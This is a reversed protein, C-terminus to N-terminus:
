IGKRRYLLCAIDVIALACFLVGYVPNAFITKLALIWCGIDGFIIFACVLAGFSCALVAAAATDKAIKASECYEKTATDVANELATNFLEASIVLAFILVLLVWEIKSIGYFLAFYVVSLMLSLDLKLNYESKVACLFGKIACHLSQLFNKNKM